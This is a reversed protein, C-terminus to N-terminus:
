ENGSSDGSAISDVTGARTSKSHADGEDSDSDYDAWRPKTSPSGCPSKRPRSLPSSAPSSVPSKLPGTLPSSAPTSMPSKSPGSLPTCTASTMPSKTPMSSPSSPSIMPSNRIRTKATAKAKTKGSDKANENDNKAVQQTVADQGGQQQYRASVPESSKGWKLGHFHRICRQAARDGALILTAKGINCHQVELKQVLSELGAQEIAAELMGRTCLMKPLCSLEVAVSEETSPDQQAQPMGFPNPMQYPDQQPSFSGRKGGAQPSAAEYGGFPSPVWMGECFEPAVFCCPVMHMQPVIMYQIAAGEQPQEFNNMVPATQAATM